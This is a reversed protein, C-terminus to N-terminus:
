EFSSCSVQHFREVSKVSINKIQEIPLMGGLRPGLLILAKPETKHNSVSQISQEFVPAFHVRLQRRQVRPERACLVIAGEAHELAVGAVARVAHGLQGVDGLEELTLSMEKEKGNVTKLM